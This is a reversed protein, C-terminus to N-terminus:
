ESKLKNFLKLMARLLMTSEMKFKDAFGCVTAEFTGFKEYISHGRFKLLFQFLFYKWSNSYLQSSGLPIASIKSKNLPM